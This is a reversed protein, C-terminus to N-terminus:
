AKWRSIPSASVGSVSVQPLALNPYQAVPLQPICVAGILTILIACVTAFVPRRVFFDVFM